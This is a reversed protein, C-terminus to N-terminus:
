GGISTCEITLRLKSTFTALLIKPRSSSLWFAVLQLGEQSDGVLLGHCTWRNSAVTFLEGIFFGCIDAGTYTIGFMNM